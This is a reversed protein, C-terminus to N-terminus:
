RRRISLLVELLIVVLTLIIATSWSLVRLFRLTILAMGLIGLLAGQRIARQLDGQRGLTVALRANLLYSLPIGTSVLAFGLIVVFIAQGLVDPYVYNMYFFLGVWFLVALIGLVILGARRHM